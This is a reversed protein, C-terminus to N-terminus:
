RVRVSFRRAVTRGGFVVSIRGAVRKGSLSRGLRWRCRAVATVADASAATRKTRISKGLLRLGHGAARASCSLRARRLV